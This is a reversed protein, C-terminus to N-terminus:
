VHYVPKVYTFKQDDIKLSFFSRERNHVYLLDRFAKDMSKKNEGTVRLDNVFEKTEMALSAMHLKVSLYDELPVLGRKEHDIALYEGFAWRDTSGDYFCPNVKRLSLVRQISNRGKSGVKKFAIDSVNGSEFFQHEVVEFNKNDLLDMTVEDAKNRASSYSGRIWFNNIQNTKVDLDFCLYNM